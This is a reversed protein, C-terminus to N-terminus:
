MGVCSSRLGGHWTHLNTKFPFSDLRVTQTSPTVVFGEAALIEEPVFHYAILTTILERQEDDALAAQM